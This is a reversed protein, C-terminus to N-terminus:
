GELSIIGTRDRDGAGGGSWTLHRTLSRKLTGRHRYPNGNLRRLNGSNQSILPGFPPWSCSSVSRVEDNQSGTLSLSELHRSTTLCRHDPSVGPLCRCAETFTLVNETM